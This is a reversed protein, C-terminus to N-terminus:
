SSVLSPTEKEPSSSVLWTDSYEEDLKRIAKLIKAVNPTGLGTAADWGETASYGYDCYGPVVCNNRGVTIDNFADPEREYIKYLLPNLFGLVPLGRQIRDASILAFIGAIIPASASTGGVLTLVGPNV